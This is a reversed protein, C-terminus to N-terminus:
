PEIEKLLWQAVRNDPDLELAKERPAGPRWHTGPGGRSQGGRASGRPAVGM